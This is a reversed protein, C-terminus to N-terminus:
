RKIGLGSIFTAVAAVANNALVDEDLDPYMGFMTSAYAKSGQPDEDTFNAALESLATETSGVLSDGFRERVLSASAAPGGQAMTCSFM